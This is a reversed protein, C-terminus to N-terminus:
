NGVVCPSPPPTEVNHKQKIYETHINNNFLNICLSKYKQLNFNSKTKIEKSIQLGLLKVDNNKDTDKYNTEINEYSDISNFKRKM